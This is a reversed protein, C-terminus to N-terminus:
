KSGGDPLCAPAVPQTAYGAPMICPNDHFIGGGCRCQAPGVPHECFNASPYEQLCEGRTDCGADQRYLCAVNPLGGESEPLCDSDQSCGTTAADPTPPKGENKTTCAVLVASLSVAALRALWQRAREGLASM